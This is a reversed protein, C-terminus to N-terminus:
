VPGQLILQRKAIFTLFYLYSLGWFTEFFLFIM